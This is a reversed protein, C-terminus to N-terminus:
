DPVTSHDQCLSRVEKLLSHFCRVVLSLICEYVEETKEENKLKRLRPLLVHVSNLDALGNQESLIALDKLDDMAMSQANENVWNQLSEMLRVISDEHKRFIDLCQMLADANRTKVHRIKGDLIDECYQCFTHYALHQIEEMHLRRLGQSLELLKQRLDLLREPTFPLDGKALGQLTEKM